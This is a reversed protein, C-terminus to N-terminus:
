QFPTLTLASPDTFTSKLIPNTTVFEYEPAHAFPFVSEVIQITTVPLPRHANGKGHILGSVRKALDMKCAGDFKLVHPKNSTFNHM